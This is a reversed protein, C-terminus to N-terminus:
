ANTGELEDDGELESGELDSSRNLEHHDEIGNGNLDEDGPRPLRQGGPGFQGEPGFHESRQDFFPAGPRDGSNAGIAFGAGGSVLCAAATGLIAAKNWRKKTPETAVPEQEANAEPTVAPQEVTEDAWENAVNQQDM